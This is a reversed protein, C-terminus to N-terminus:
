PSNGSSISNASYYPDIDNHCCVKRKIIAMSNIALSVIILRVGKWM